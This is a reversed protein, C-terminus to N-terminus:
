ATNNSRSAHKGMDVQAWLTLADVKRSHIINNLYRKDQIM